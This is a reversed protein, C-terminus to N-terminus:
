GSAKHVIIYAAGLLGALCSEAAHKVVYGRCGLLKQRWWASGDEDPADCREVQGADLWRLRQLREEGRLHRLIDGMQDITLSQLPALEVPRQQARSVQHLRRRYATVGASAHRVIRREAEGRVNHGGKSRACREPTVNNTNKLLDPKKDLSAPECFATTASFKVDPTTIRAGAM